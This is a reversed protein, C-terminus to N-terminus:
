TEVARSRDRPRHELTDRGLLEVVGHGAEHGAPHVGARGALREPREAVAGGVVLESVKRATLRGLGSLLLCRSRGAYARRLRGLLAPAPKAPAPAPHRVAPRDPLPHASRETRPRPAPPRARTPSRVTQAASRSRSRTGSRRLPAAACPM